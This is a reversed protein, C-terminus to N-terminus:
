FSRNISLSMGSYALVLFEPQTCGEYELMPEELEGMGLSHIEATETHLRNREATPDTGSPKYLPGLEPFTPM